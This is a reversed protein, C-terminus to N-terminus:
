GLSQHVQLLFVSMQINSKINIGPNKNPFIASINLSLFKAYVTTRVIIPTAKPKKNCKKVFFLDKIILIM